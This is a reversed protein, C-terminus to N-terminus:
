GGGAGDKLRWREEAIGPAAGQVAGDREWGLREHPRCRRGILADIAWGGDAVVSVGAADLADLVEVVAGATM